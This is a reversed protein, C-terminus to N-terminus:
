RLSVRLSEPVATLAGARPGTLVVPLMWTGRGRREADVYAGLSAADIGRAASRPGHWRVVVQAPRVEARMEGRIGRVEVSVRMERTEEAEIPV